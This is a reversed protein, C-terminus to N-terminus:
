GSSEDQNDEKSRATIIKTLDIGFAKQVEKGPSLSFCSRRNEADVAEVVTKIAELMNSDMEIRVTQISM